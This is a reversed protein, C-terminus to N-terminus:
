SACAASREAPRFELRTARKPAFKERLQEAVREVQKGPIQDPYRETLWEMCSEATTENWVDPHERKMMLAFAVRGMPAIETVPANVGVPSGPKRLYLPAEKVDAMIDIDAYPAKRAKMAKEAEEISDTGFADKKIEKLVKDTNTDGQAKFSEGFVPADMNFGHADKEVPAVDFLNETGDAREMVVTITPAKYPNLRVKVSDKVNLGHYGLERLDYTRVGYSTRTDVSITFDAGVQRREDKWAAIAHLVDREVTRLKDAPISLWAGNRTQKHRTHIATACYHRRWRDAENQMFALDPVDHFRQRSEFEREVLNQCQEVAGTASAAGPAHHLVRIGLQEGFGMVLSSANCSGPDMYLIFPVGHAPDNPGRDCIFDILTNLVGQANEGASQEYRVYFAGSTHDVVVYRVVRKNKIDALNGPKKENFKREDMLGIRKTGRIYYLVCVSADLEWVHNAHLSRVQGTPKGRELQDPHCGYQRMARCLTETSPMFIEGTEPNTVGEGQAALISVARKITMTRKGNARTGFVVLGAIKKCLEFPVCTEGKGKRPKRNSSWGAYQKLYGYTTNMSVGLVAALRQVIEGREGNCPDAEALKRATDGVLRIQEPTLSSPM